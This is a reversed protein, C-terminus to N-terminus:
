ATGWARRNAAQEKPTAWRCNSPEYNGDHDIRDLSTGEPREGMDALFNEFSDWRPCITIGRGGYLNYQRYNPSNCRRRMSRWSNYTPSRKGNLTHGHTGQKGFDRRLCGCSRVPRSGSLNCSTLRKEVGCECRCLWVPHGHRNTGKRELVTLRGVVQGAVIRRQGSEAPVPFSKAISGGARGVGSM